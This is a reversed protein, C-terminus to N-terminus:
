SKCAGLEDPALPSSASASPTVARPASPSLRAAYGDRDFQQSMANPDGTGDLVERAVPHIETCFRSVERVARPAHRRRAEPYWSLIAMRM